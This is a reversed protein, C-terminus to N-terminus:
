SKDQVPNEEQEAGITPRGNLFFRDMEELLDHLLQLQEQKLRIIRNVKESLQAAKTRIALERYEYQLLLTEIEILKTTIRDHM